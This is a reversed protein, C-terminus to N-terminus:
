GVKAQVYSPPLASVLDSFVDGQIGVHGRMRESALESDGQQVAEVVSAHEQLSKRIRGPHHLQFRRYPSLRNRTTSTMNELFENHAGAYLIEHFVRNEEYYADVDGSKALSSCRKHSDNLQKREAPSMRRAALGACVAELEAMVEFMQLLEQVTVAAVIAGQRPRLEVLKATALQHLAERVPTRSVSFRAALKTEDLRDGPTLEGSLIEGELRLRLRDALRTPKQKM